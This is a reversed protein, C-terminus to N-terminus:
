NYDYVYDLNNNLGPKINTFNINQDGAKSEYM